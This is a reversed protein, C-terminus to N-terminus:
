GIRAPAGCRKPSPALDSAIIDPAQPLNARIVGCFVACGPITKRKRALEKEKKEGITQYIVSKLVKSGSIRLVILKRNLEDISRRVRIAIVKDFPIEAL